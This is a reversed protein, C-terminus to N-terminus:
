QFLLKLIRERKPNNIPFFVCIREARRYLEPTLHLLFKLAQCKDATDTKKFFRETHILSTLLFM